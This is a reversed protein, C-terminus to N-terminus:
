STLSFGVCKLLEVREKTIKASPDGALLKEYWYRQAEVWDGLRSNSEVDFHGHKQKFASLESFMSEWRCMPSLPYDAREGGRTIEWQFDLDNLLGIREFSMASLKYKRRQNHVWTGLTPNSPYKQPVRSHGKDERFAVLQEYKEFWKTDYKKEAAAKKKRKKISRKVKTAADKSVAASAKEQTRKPKLTADMMHNLSKTAETPASSLYRKRGSSIIPRSSPGDKKIKPLPQHPRIQQQQHHHATTPITHMPPESRYTGLNATQIGNQQLFIPRQQHEVVVTPKAVALMRRTASSKLHYQELSTRRIFSPPQLDEGVMPMRIASYAPRQPYRQSPFAVAADVVVSRPIRSPLAEDNVTSPIGSYYNNNLDDEADDFQGPQIFFRGNRPALNSQLRTSM